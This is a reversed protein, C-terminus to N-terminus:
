YAHEPQHSHRTVAMLGNAQAASGALLREIRFHRQADIHNFSFWKKPHIEDRSVHCARV